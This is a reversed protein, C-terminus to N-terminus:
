SLKVVRKNDFQKIAFLIDSNVRQARKGESGLDYINVDMDQQMAMQMFSPHFCYSTNTLLSTSKTMFGLVPTAIAGATMPSGAPIFDRSVFSSINFLDNQQPVANVMVRGEEPVDADDLLEKAELIDALALTTGSDFAIDHDPASASPSITAIIISHVKKMISYAAHEELKDVFSISQLLSKKTVIFDKVIRRNAILQINAVTLSEADNSAGEALESAEAFEPIQSVNVTDGLERLEGEYDSAISDNFPLKALLIDYFTASWKEPVLASLEGSSLMLQDAM